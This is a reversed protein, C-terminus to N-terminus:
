WQSSASRSVFDYVYNQLWLISVLTAIQFSWDVYKNFLDKEKFKFFFLGPIKLICYKEIQLCLSILFIEM